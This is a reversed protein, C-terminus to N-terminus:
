RNPSALGGRRLDRLAKAARLLRIGSAVVLAGALAGMVDPFGDRWYGLTARDGAMELLQSIELAVFGVGFLLLSAGM